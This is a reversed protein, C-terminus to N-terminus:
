RRREGGLARRGLRVGDPTGYAHALDGLGRRRNGGHRAAAPGRCWREDVSGYASLLDSLQEILVVCTAATNTGAVTDYAISANVFAPVDAFFAPSGERASELQARFEHFTQDTQTLRKVLEHEQPSYHGDTLMIPKRQSSGGNRGGHCAALGFTTTRLACWARATRTSPTSSRTRM